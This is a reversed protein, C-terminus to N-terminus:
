RDKHAAWRLKAGCSRSCCKTSNSRSRFDNGCVVCKGEHTAIRGRKSRSKEKCTASCFKSWNGAKRTEYESHCWECTKKIPKRDKWCDAGHQKHWEHGEPSKHWEKTLPRILDLRAAREAIYEPTKTSDGHLSQHGGKSKVCELNSIDNNSTDNDKHHIDYGNPVPGYVSKWIEIHLARVGKVIYSGNPRYYHSDSWNKSEPYRRFTIGNFVVSESKVTSTRQKYM